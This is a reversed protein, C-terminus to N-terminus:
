PNGGDDQSGQQERRSRRDSVIAVVILTVPVAALVIGIAWLTRGVGSVWTPGGLSGVWIRVALGMGLCTATVLSFLMPLVPVKANTARKKVFVGRGVFLWLIVLAAIILWCAYAAGKM